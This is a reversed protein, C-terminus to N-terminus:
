GVYKNGYTTQPSLVTIEFAGDSETPAGNADYSAVHHQSVRHFNAYKSADQVIPGLIFPRAPTFTANAIQAVSLVRGDSKVNNPIATAGGLGSLMAALDITLSVCQMKAAPLKLNFDSLIQLTASGICPVSGSATTVKIEYTVSAAITAANADAANGADGVANGNLLPSIPKAEINGNQTFAKEDNPNCAGVAAVLSAVLAAIYHRTILFSVKM